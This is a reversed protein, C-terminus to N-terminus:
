YVSCNVLLYVLGLKEEIVKLIEKRWASVLRELEEKPDKNRQNFILQQTM